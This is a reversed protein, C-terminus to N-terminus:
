ESASACETQLCKMRQWSEFGYLDNILFAVFCVVVSWYSSHELAAMVWLVVLVVDNAAYGLAYFPSRRFTLYVAVFSTAVSVTSPVINATDFAALIFYFGFTVAATLGLMLLWEKGGIHNVAVQSRNGNYPHRLWSVLAVVSMPMTMGLYTLMEGYYRFTLSVVAYMISFVVMLVQGIPNGKANFIFSTVGILSASLTLYEGAGFLFFSGIIFVVSSLWLTWEGVSLLKFLKKM